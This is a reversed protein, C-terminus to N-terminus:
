QRIGEYNHYIPKKDKALQELLMAAEVPANHKAFIEKIALANKKFHPEHLLKVVANRIQSPSPRQTKLNIGVGAWAIRNSIEAKEETKGAAVLPVGNALAIQVAVYGANSILVDVKPMLYYHPLFREIRVNSPLPDLKVCDVPLGGTTVIVLVDQQALAKLTPVILDTPDRTVTGQTVHIVPRDSELDSWWNPITFDTPPDPLFPGVFHVQPPLDSRPYEFEQTTGQLYLFPSVAADFFSTKLPPLSLSARVQNAYINVDRFLVETSLWNIFRNRLHGVHTANPLLGLGVPATDRSNFPLISISYSAWPIGSMENIISAGLFARECLLVDAPFKTLIQKFDRFQGVGSDIFIHKLEFKLKTLGTLGKRGPFAEDLDKDSFDPSNQMPIYRAGAGEVKKIFAKGTYWWVDHGRRVLERVIPFAQNVHGVYPVTGVLFRAM